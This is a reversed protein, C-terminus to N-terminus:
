RTAATAVGKNRGKQEKRYKRRAPQLMRREQTPKRLKRKPPKRAGAGARRGARANTRGASRGQVGVGQHRHRRLDDESRLLRLRHRRAAYAAARPRRSVVRHARNRHREAPGREHDQHGARGPADREADRAEDRPPVHDAERAAARDLRRDAARRDRAQPNGRHQRAVEARGDDQAARGRLTEIDEGKKGIVVGPRASHSRSARTRRRASSRHGQRGVRARAEEEPLRAGQHGREADARFQKSNAYWKSTWNRNVALRFGTPHIKQGM